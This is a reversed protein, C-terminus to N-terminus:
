LRCVRVRDTDEWAGSAAVEELYDLFEEVPRSSTEGGWPKIMSQLSLDKRGLRGVESRLSVAAELKRREADGEEVKRQLKVKQKVLHENIVLVEELKARLEAIDGEM